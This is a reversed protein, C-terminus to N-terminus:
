QNLYSHKGLGLGTSSALTAAKRSEGKDFIEQERVALCLLLLLLM